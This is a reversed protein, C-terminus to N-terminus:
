VRTIKVIAIIAPFVRGVARPLRKPEPQWGLRAAALPHPELPAEPSAGGRGANRHLTVAARLAPLPGSMKIYVSSAM